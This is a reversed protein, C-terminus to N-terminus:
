KTNKLGAKQLLEGLSQTARKPSEVDAGIEDMSKGCATCNGNEDLPPHWFLSLSLIILEQIIEELDVHDGDYHFLGIDDEFAEEPSSELDKPRARLFFNLDLSLDRPMNKNCLACPQEYRGTVKGRVEGGSSRKFVRLDVAPESLFRFGTDSGEKLRGNLADLQLKDRVPLGEYPIDSIRVKM